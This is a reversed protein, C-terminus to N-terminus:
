LGAAAGKAPQQVEGQGQTAPGETSKNQVVGNQQLIKGSNGILADIDIGKEKLGAAFDENAIGAAKMAKAELGSVEGDGNRDFEKAIELETAEGEKLKEGLASIKAESNKTFVITTGDVTASNEKVWAELDKPDKIGLIEHFQLGSKLAEQPSIGGDKDLDLEKLADKDGREIGALIRERKADMEEQLLRAPSGEPLQKSLERAHDRAKKGLEAAHTYLETMGEPNALAKDFLETLQEITQPPIVGSESTVSLTPTEVM